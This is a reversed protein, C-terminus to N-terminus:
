YISIRKLSYKLYNNKYDKIEDFTKLDILVVRITEFEKIPIKTNNISTYIFLSDQKVKYYIENTYFIYDKTKESKERFTDSLVIEEHDGSIGWNRITFYAKSKNVNVIEKRNISDFVKEGKMINLFFYGIMGVVSTAILLFLYNRKRM